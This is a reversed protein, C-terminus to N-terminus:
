SKLAAQRKVVMGPSGPSPHVTVNTNIESVLAPPPSRFTYQAVDGLGAGGKHVRQLLGFNVLTETALRIRRETWPLAQHAMARAAVAFTEGRATRAVHAAQLKVYLALADPGHKPYEALLRDVM